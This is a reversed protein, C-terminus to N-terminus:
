TKDACGEQSEEVWRVLIERIQEGGIEQKLHILRMFEM